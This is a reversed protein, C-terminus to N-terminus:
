DILTSRSSRMLSIATTGCFAALVSSHSLSTPSCLAISCWGVSRSLVSYFFCGFLKDSALSLVGDASRRPKGSVRHRIASPRCGRGTLPSHSEWYRHDQLASV